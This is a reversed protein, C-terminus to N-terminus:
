PAALGTVRVDELWTLCAHISDRWPPSLARLVLWRGAGPRLDLSFAGDDEQHRSVEGLPMVRGEEDLASFALTIGPCVGYIM